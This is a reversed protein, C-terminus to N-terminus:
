GYFLFSDLEGNLAFAVPQIAVVDRLLTENGPKIRAYGTTTGISTSKNYRCKFPTAHAFTEEYPYSESSAIGPQYQIYM